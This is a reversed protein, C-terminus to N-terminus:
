VLREELHHILQKAGDTDFEEVKDVIPKIAEAWKSNEVLKQLEELQNHATVLDDDVTVTLNALLALLRVRDVEVEEAVEPRSTVPRIADIEDLLQQLMTEFAQLQEEAPPQEQKLLEDIGAAAEFLRDAGINGVVGKLAHCLREAEVLHGDAILERLGRVSDAYREHFRFLMKRYATENCAMRRLGQETNLGEIRQLEETIAVLECVDTTAEEGEERAVGQLWERLMTILEPPDIPKAIYDSMGSAIAHERDGIMAQATMAIIPLSAYRQGGPLKALERIRMTAEYGDMVPMQIDMLVADYNRQQVRALAVKGNHAHDVEIDLSALLETAFERNIENDEVLLIRSGIFSTEGGTLSEAPQSQQIFQTLEHGLAAMVADLLTSPSVPKILFGDVGAQEAVRLVEDRGHATVMIVKPKPQIAMDRQIRLTLEDGHMGPMRWDTLVLDYGKGNEPSQLEALAQEGNSVTRVDFQFEVLMERLVDRAVGNDDAVLARFGKLKPLLEALLRQHSKEAQHSIGVPLTFCFTAGEGPVSSELWIRGGMLETLQQSIALGLGTGGYNRSISQDVQSFKRFLKKQQEDSIGIGNDRVCFKLVGEDESRKECTIALEVEGQETFKVGNGCLNILIQGLRVPDGILVRPLDPSQRVLFEIGRQEARSGVIDTLQELVTEVEFTVHETELKGAEIKSFDLIDNIIGLLSKSASEVKKLYNYQVPNLESKQTLYLMGLIANMPTRIEHSMSALFDSKARNAQEAEDRALKLENETLTLLTITRKQLWALWFLGLLAFIILAIAFLTSGRLTSVQQVQKTLGNVARDNVRLYLETFAALVDLLRTHTALLQENSMSAVALLEEEVRNLTAIAEDSVTQM